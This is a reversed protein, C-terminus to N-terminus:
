IVRSTIIEQHGLQFLRQAVLFFWVILLMYGIGFLAAVIVSPPIGASFDGALLLACALIGIAAIARTFINGRLMVVSSVLGAGMVASRGSMKTILFLVIGLFPQVLAIFCWIKGTRKLAAYLGIHAMGVLALIVIDLFNLGNLLDIQVGSYGAHLKFVLVLWNNQLATTWGNGNGAQRGPLFLDIAALLFIMGALLAATGSIKYLWKWRYNTTESEFGDM